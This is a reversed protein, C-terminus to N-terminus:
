FLHKNAQYWAEKEREVAAWGISNKYDNIQRLGEDVTLRGILIETELAKVRTNLGRTATEFANVTASSAYDWPAFGFGPISQSILAAQSHRRAWDQSVPDQAARGTIWEPTWIDAVADVLCFERNGQVWDLEIRNKAADIVQPVGNMNRYHVGEIGYSPTFYGDTIQWDLFEMIAKPNRANKNMLCMKFLASALGFGFQGYSTRIPEIPVFDAQPVNKMMDVYDAVGIMGMVRMAVRGTLNFERQRNYNPGDTIYEPDILGERYCLQMYALADRYAPTSYWDVHHGNVININTGPRGYMATVFVDWSADTGIGWTGQPHGSANEAKARRMFALADDVTVPIRMNFRDLWDKRVYLGQNLRTSLERKSTMGYMLGDVDSTIWPLLDQNESLYKKYATSYREVYDGV